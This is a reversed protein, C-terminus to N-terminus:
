PMTWIKDGFMNRRKRSEEQTGVNYMYESTCCDEEEERGKGVWCKVREGM